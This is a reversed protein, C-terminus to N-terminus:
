LHFILKLSFELFMAKEETQGDDLVDRERLIESYDMIPMVQGDFHFKFTPDKDLIDLLNDMLQVLHRYGLLM